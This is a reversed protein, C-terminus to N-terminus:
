KGGKCKAILKTRIDTKLLHKIIKENQKLAPYMYPKAVQGNTWIRNGDADEYSWPTDRYSLTLGPVDYKYTGAGKSGTGFEVYAAYETNTYVRGEVVGNKTKVEQHISERLIGTDVPALLKAQGHVLLTAKNMSDTVDTRRINDLRKLLRDVNKITAM